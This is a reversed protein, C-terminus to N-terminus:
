KFGINVQIAQKHEVDSGFGVMQLNKAINESARMSNEEKKANLLKDKWFTRLTEENYGYKTEQIHRFLSKFKENAILRTGNAWAIQRTSTDPYVKIYATGVDWNKILEDIFLEWRERTPDIEERLDKLEIEANPLNRITKRTSM